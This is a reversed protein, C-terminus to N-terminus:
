REGGESRRLERLEHFIQTYSDLLRRPSCEVPETSFFQALLAETRPTSRYKFGYRGPTPLPTKTLEVGHSHLWAAVKMSFELKENNM